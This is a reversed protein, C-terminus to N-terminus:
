RGTRHIRSAFILVDMGPILIYLAESLPLPPHKRFRLRDYPSVLFRAMRLFPRTSGFATTSGSGFATAAESKEKFRFPRGQGEISKVVVVDIIGDIMRGYPPFFPSFM